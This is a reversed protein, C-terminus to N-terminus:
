KVKREKALTEFLDLLTKMREGKGQLLEYVKEEITGEALVMVNETKHKQGIRRQRGCGQEYLERDYIPGAWITSTGKTFTLGHAASQPHAFVVDFAGRQYAEVISNRASDTADGDIVAYTLGRAKASDVLLDKQHKWNFFVLPHRGHREEVLDLIMEYRGEDVVRYKGTGDYVAGSAVQLLKSAVAAANVALIPTTAPAPGALKNAIMDPVFILLQALELQDYAKQQGPSLQYPVEYFHTTPIDTCDDLRHRIVIDSLEGFVAEEAGDKDMWQIANKDRGVQKPTCVSNRFAYFHPGLRKGGDLIYIQHWIDCIGNSNPTATMGARKFNPRWFHKAIKAMARSRQSTHHKFATPEDIILDTFKDLFGKRQKVIWKVADHNTVYADADAAFAVERNAATAISVKLDPAFRKFDNGWASQLLSRKALVLACGGKMKKRRKQFSWIRVATKGTGADSCDYVVDNKADHALSKVQHKMPKATKVAVSTRVFKSSSDRLRATVTM